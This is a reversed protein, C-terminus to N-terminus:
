TVQYCFLLTKSCNVLFSELAPFNRYFWNPTVQRYVFKYLSLLLFFWKLSALHQAVFKLSGKEKNLPLWIECCIRKSKWMWFQAVFQPWMFAKNWVAEAIARELDKLFSSLENLAKATNSCDEASNAGHWTQVVDLWRQVEKESLSMIEVLREWM